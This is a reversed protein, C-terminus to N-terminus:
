DIRRSVKWIPSDFKLEYTSIQQEAQFQSEVKATAVDASRGLLTSRTAASGRRSELKTRCAADCGSEAQEVVSAAEPFVLERAGKFDGVFLRHQFELAADKPTSALRQLTAPKFAQYSTPHHNCAMKAGGWAIFCVAFITGVFVFTLRANTDASVPRRPSLGPRPAPKKAEMSSTM